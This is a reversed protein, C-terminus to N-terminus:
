WCGGWKLAAVPGLQQANQNIFLAADTLQTGAPPADLVGSALGNRADDVLRQAAGGALPLRLEEGAAHLIKAQWPTDFGLSM